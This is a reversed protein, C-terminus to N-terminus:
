KRKPTNNPWPLNTWHEYDEFQVTQIKDMHNKYFIKGNMFWASNIEDPMKKKVCMLVHLNLKTMDENIFIDTGKLQKRNATDKRAFKQKNETKKRAMKTRCLGHKIKMMKQFLQQTQVLAYRTYCEAHKNERLAYHGANSRADHYKMVEIHVTANISSNYTYFCTYEGEQMVSLSYITLIGGNNTSSINYMPLFSGNLFYCQETRFECEAITENQGNNFKRNISFTIEPADTKCELTINKGEQIIGKVDIHVKYTVSVRISMVVIVAFMLKM